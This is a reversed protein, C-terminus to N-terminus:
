HSQLESTHEESRAAAAAANEQATTTTQVLVPVILDIPAPNARMADNGLPALVLSFKIASPLSLSTTSDWTEQWNEGDFFTMAAANVGTLLTQNETTPEAAPLLNRTLVRVLDKLFLRLLKCVFHAITM